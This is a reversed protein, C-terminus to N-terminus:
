FTSYNKYSFNTNSFIGKDSRDQREIKTRHFYLLLSEVTNMM